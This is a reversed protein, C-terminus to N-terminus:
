QPGIVTEAATELAMLAFQLSAEVLRNIALFHSIMDDEIVAIDTMNQQNIREGISLVKSLSRQRTLTLLAGASLFVGEGYMAFAGHRVKKASLEADETSHIEKLCFVFQLVSWTAAFGTMSPFDFINPSTENFLDGQALYEKALAEVIKQMFPQTIEQDSPVVEAGTFYKKLQKFRDDFLNFFDDNKNDVNKIDTGNLYALIQQIENRKLSYGVDLMQAVAITNGLVKMLELLQEISPDNVFGRYAGEFMDYVGHCGTGIPADAIRRVNTHMSKYAKSFVQFASVAYECLAQSLAYVGGDDLIYVLERFHEVSIFATTQTLVAIKPKKQRDSESPIMRMPNTHLIYSPIVTEFLHEELEELVLSNFSNPTSNQFVLSQLEEWKTVPIDYEVFIQHTNKLIDLTKTFVIMSLLGNARVQSLADQMQDVFLEDLRQAFFAKIDLYNGLLFLQNQQLVAPFRRATPNLITPESLMNPNYQDSFAQTHYNRVNHFAFECIMKTISLVCIEAEARIEDFLYQSNLKKLATAAADDYISLPYFIAGVLEMKSAHNIAYNILIYPLSTTVPFYVAGNVKESVQNRYVDLWYEKFFLSSQDSAVELVEDLNCLDAFYRSDNLFIKIDAEENSKAISHVCVPNEQNLFQELQSRMLEIFSLHPMSKTEEQKEEDTAKSSRHKKRSSSFDQLLLCLNEISSHDYNKKGACKKALPELKNKIFDQISNQIANAFMDNLKPLNQSIIERLTRALALIQMTSDREFNSFGYRMAREYASILSPDQAPVEAQEEGPKAKNNSVIEYSNANLIKDALLEVITRIANSLIKISSPIRKMFYDTLEPTVGENLRTLHVIMNDVENRLGKQIGKFNVNFRQNAVKGGKGGTKAAIDKLLSSYNLMEDFDLPFEYVLLIAPHKSRVQLLLEKINNPIDSIVSKRSKKMKDEMKKGQTVLDITFTLAVIYITELEALIFTDNTLQSYIRDFFLSSVKQILEPSMGMPSGSDNVETLSEILDHRISGPSNFWFRLQMPFIENETKGVIKSVKSIDDAVAKRTPNMQSLREMKYILRFISDLLQESYKGQSWVDSNSLVAKIYTVCTDVKSKFDILPDVLQKLIPLAVETTQQNQKASAQVRKELDRTVSRLPYFYSTFEDMTRSYKDFQRIIIISQSALTNSAIAPVKEADDDFPHSLMNVVPVSRAVTEAIPSSDLDFNNVADKSEKIIDSTLMM